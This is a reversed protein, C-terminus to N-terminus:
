KVQVVLTSNSSAITLDYVGVTPFVFSYSQGGDITTGRFPGATFSVAADSPNKWVVPTVGHYASVATTNFGASTV